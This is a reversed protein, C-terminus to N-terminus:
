GRRRATGLLKPMGSAGPFYREFSCNATAVCRLNGLQASGEENAM